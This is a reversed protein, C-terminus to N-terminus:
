IRNEYEQREENSMKDKDVAGVEPVICEGRASPITCSACSSSSPEPINLQSQGLGGDGADGACSSSDAVRDESPALTNAPVVTQPISSSSEPELPMMNPPIRNGM